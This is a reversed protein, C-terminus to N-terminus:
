RSCASFFTLKRFHTTLVRPNRDAKYSRPRRLSIGRATSFLCVLLADMAEDEATRNLTNNKPVAVTPKLSWPMTTKKTDSTNSLQRIRWNEPWNPSSIDNVHM